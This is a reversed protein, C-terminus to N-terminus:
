SRAAASPPSSQTIEMSGSGAKKGVWAYAAGKGKTPGSYTKRLDADMKEYPSWDAWAHFDDIRPFIEDPTADIVTSREVRFTDTNIPGAM